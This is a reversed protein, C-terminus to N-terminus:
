IFHLLNRIKTDTDSYECETKGDILADRTQLLHVNAVLANFISKLLM